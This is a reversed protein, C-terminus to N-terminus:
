ERVSKKRSSVCFIRRGMRSLKRSFVSEFFEDPPSPELLILSPHLLTLLKAQLYYDFFDTTFYILGGPELAATLLDLQPMRFFRRQRHKNKPWPDPFYIHFGGIRSAPLRRIFEEARGCIIHVNGFGCRDIKKLAKACRKEKIDIGLLWREEKGEAYYTLFHGNGCGIEIEVTRDSRFIEQLTDWDTFRM